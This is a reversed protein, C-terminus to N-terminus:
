IFNTVKQRGAYVKSTGGRDLLRDEYFIFNGAEYIKCSGEHLSM